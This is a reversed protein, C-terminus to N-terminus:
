AGARQAALRPTPEAFVHEFLADRTPAPVTWAREFAADVEAAATARAEALADDDYGHHRTLYREVRVIPDREQWAAM